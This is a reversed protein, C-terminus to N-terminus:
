LSDAFDPTEKPIIHIEENNDVQWEINNNEFLTIWDTLTANELVIGRYQPALHFPKSYYEELDQTIKALTPNKAGTYMFDGFAIIARKRAEGMRHEFQQERKESAAQFRLSERYDVIMFGAAIFLGVGATKTLKLLRDRWPNEQQSCVVDTYIDRLNRSIQAPSPRRDPDLLRCDDILSRLAGHDCQALELYDALHWIDTGPVLADPHKEQEPAPRSSELCGGLPEAIVPIRLLKSYLCRDIIGGHIIGVDHLYRIGNALEALIILQLPYAIERLARKFSVGQYREFVFYGEFGNPGKVFDCLIYREFNPHESIKRLKHKIELFLREHRIKYVRVHNGVNDVANYVEMHRRHEGSELAYHFHFDMVAASM